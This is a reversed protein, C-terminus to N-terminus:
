KTRLDSECVNAAYICPKQTLLNLTSLLVSEDESLKLVRVPIGSELSLSVRELVELEAAEQAKETPSKAKGKKLRDIRREVQLLDSLALEFNITAVDEVPNVRGDVHIVEDDDFCRVTHIIADCERINSLFKNGLGQGESAGKVLGAIDVIEVFAPIINESSSIQSLVKLREDPVAVIGVNPEITCFPFNATQAAANETLANFLTSKGVNPLGVIGTKLSM